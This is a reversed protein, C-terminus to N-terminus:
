TNFSVNCEVKLIFFNLCKAGVYIESYILVIYNVIHYHKSVVLKSYLSVKQM